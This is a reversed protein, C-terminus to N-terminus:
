IEDPVFRLELEGRMLVVSEDFSAGVKRKCDVGRSPQDDILRCLRKVLTSTRHVEVERALVEPKSYGELTWPWYLSGTRLEVDGSSNTRATNITIIFAV